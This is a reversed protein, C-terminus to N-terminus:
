YLDHAHKRTTFKLQLRKLLYYMIPVVVLTLFTAFTLGFIIAWAMPGWFIANDGGFSINPDFTSLMQIFDINFGVALPILGLVTTIATLLVPRLRTIGGEVISEFLLHKPLIDDDIMGLEAKKKDMILATYDILVIANNVVIGALSIIGLMTMMIVFEMHFAVLGFLVGTLSLLVSSVIIMPTSASNFQAVLILFILLVAFALAKSLFSMQEAQEEQEGTFSVSIGKPLNFEKLANQIKQNVITPNYGELVGSQITIVRKLDHRKVASFTSTKGATAVASVPVQQIKGNSPDRFTIKQNMIFDEDYRYKDQLRVNIPYDDDDGKVKYRSVEMGYIATRFAQGIQSTSVNYRRAKQRDIYIPMEPKGQEVDLILEEVGPINQENIFSVMKDTTEMLKFYDEGQVEISIQAGVPPGSQDKDVKIKVGPYRGVAKRIEAMVKTSSVGRRDAFDTLAITLRAKNPTEAQSLGQNPDSAGEGVQAIVSEVMFNFKHMVGNEDPEEVDYKKVYDIVKSEITKTLANTEEIDTGIPFDVYVMILSPENEPFFNVKPPFMGFLIFSLILLGFTGGLFFLPRYKYLAYNLIRQYWLEMKSMLNNQFFNTIPVLIKINFYGAFGFIVLLSGLIRLGSSGNKFGGFYSLIGLSIMILGINRLKKMNPKGEKVKMYISTLMPNIVLAVFLSSTLVIILTIPLYKMFEGIMGPWFALPTFAALTTATSAIIPWAVEGAGRKAAEKAPVGEAMYRYIIEVVVIGNDVLMGLAMVLSFLVMTNLTVGMMSLVLFSLLMSLPIAIGVFLANRLGLFFMLVLIVLLMGLIISNELENVMKKTQDSTDNTISISLNSPFVNEQAYKIIKSIKDAAEIQNEGARKKVDLMVVPLKYERAYSTKEQEKFSVDAIDRLYVIDLNEQKVIVDGIEEPSTFEGIVRVTRRLGDSKMDGASITVNEAGIAQAIDGFNLKLSEMKPLNIAIEVEKDMVGRVDVENIEGLAEIEDELYQGYEKLQDMSFDGSLNINMIPMLESINLEFVNPDAPLDQPWDPNSMAIDVKDKVKRLAEEPTIDFDFVIDITSYGQVSTSTIKDIGSIANIEKELPKTILKEIDIASNGPYATGIYIEPTVIEPFSERPMGNYSMFGLLVVIFIIVYVTMKNNVAWTSLGFEKHAEKKNSNM